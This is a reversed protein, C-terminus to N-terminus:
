GKGSQDDEDEKFGSSPVPDGHDGPRTTSPADSGDMSEQLAEDLKEEESLVRSQCSLDPDVTENHKREKVHDQPM